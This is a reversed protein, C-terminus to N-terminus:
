NLTDKFKIEKLVSAKNGYIDKITLKVVTKGWSKQFNTKWTGPLITKFDQEDDNIGNQNTDFYINKDIIFEAISGQSDKFDFTVAGETGTLYVIGDSSAPPNTKLIALLQNKSSSTTQGPAAGLDKVVGGTSTNTGPIFKVEQTVSDEVGHTDIVTLKVFYNGPEKYSHIPDKETSDTDNKPDGDGDSDAEAFAADTDFDWINQQIESGGVTDATSNNKFVVQNNIISFTFAANPPETKSDIYLTLPTSVAEGGKDDIVKLRVQVGELNKANYKYEITSKTTPSNNFFGDGEFDWIYKVIKGDPDKSSSSFTVKDGIFAKTTDVKFSATPMANEGNIVELTPLQGKELFDKSSVKQNDSDQIELGFGYTKKDGKKGNTGITMKASPSQTIQIGRPDDPSKLDYYWWRYQVVEGDDDEVGFAKLNVTVPTVLSSSSPDPVAQLSSFRPPKSVVKIKIIDDDSLSPNDQDFVLLKATFYGPNKPSLEKYTHTAIKNSSKDTDGFDWSYKLDRGTGDTNKSTSGDFTLVDSKNVIIEQTFDTVEAGNVFLAIQAIPNEDGGIFIRRKISTGNDQEDYITFVVNYEGGKTYTHTILQSGSINGTNTDNDGFDIKYSADSKESYESYVRFDVDVKGNKDLNATAEQGDEWAIDLTNEVTITKTIEDFEETIGAGQTDPDSVRLTVDYDGPEKFKILPTRDTLSSDNVLEWKNGGESEPSISWLYNLSTKEGDPDYSKKADFKFTGPQNKLPVTQEFLAIPPKSAVVIEEVSTASKLDGVITLTAIYKGPESFQHPFSSKSSNEGLDISKTSGDPQVKALTWNYSKIKGASASSSTGDIIVPVGISIQGNPKLRIRAAVNSVDLTFIKRDIEGLENMVELTIKYQGENKFSVKQKTFESGSGVVEDSNGFDWKYSTANLTSSADFTVGSKAEDLTIPVFDKDLKLLGNDYYSIVPIKQTGTNIDLNIKTTPPNVKVVLSSLGEVYKAPDNSKIKVTAIYTGPYKFTCQRFAPGYDAKDSNSNLPADIPTSCSVANGIDVFKGDFTANGGIKSWDINKDIISGGAPDETDLVDFTVVLPANGATVNARLRAIVPQLKGVAESFKIQNDLAAFLANGVISANDTDLDIKWGEVLSILSDSSKLSSTKHGFGRMADEYIKGLDGKQVAELTSLSQKLQIFGELEDNVKDIFDAKMPEFIKAISRTKSGSLDSIESQISIWKEFMQKPYRDCSTIIDVYFNCDAIKGSTVDLMDQNPSTKSGPDSFNIDTEYQVLVRPYGKIEDIDREFVRILENIASYTKSFQPVESRLNSLQTKASNLYSLVDSRDVNKVAKISSVVGLDKPNGYMLSAKQSESIINKIAEEANALDVFGKYINEAINRVQISSANFSPGLSDGVTYRRNQSDTGGGAGGIITNVFAYSGLIILIGITAYTISKKGTQTKEDEGGATVYLFGGYIVVIVAIMGLFGLAFNVIKIIFDKLDTSSTLAANYGEASLELTDSNAFDEFTLGKNQSSTQFLGGIKDFVDASAVEVGIVFTFLSSVLLATILFSLIKKV